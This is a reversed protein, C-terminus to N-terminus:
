STHDFVSSQTSFLRASKCGIGMCSSGPVCCGGGQAGPCSEYGDQCSTLEQSCSQGIACCGVDGNGTNTIRQCMQDAPCCSNPRDINTCPNSNAPCGFQRAQLPILRRLLPLIPENSHLAFPAQLPPLISANQLLLDSSEHDPPPLVPKRKDLTPNQPMNVNDQSSAEFTWYEPFFMEGEDDSMKRVAIPRAEPYSSLPQGAVGRKMELEEATSRRPSKVRSVWPLEYSSSPSISLLVVLLTASPLM